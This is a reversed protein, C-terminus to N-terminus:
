WYVLAKNAAKNLHVNKVDIISSKWPCKTIHISYNLFYFAYLHQFKRSKIGGVELNQNAM